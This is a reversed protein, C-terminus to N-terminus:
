AGALYGFYSLVFGVVLDIVGAGFFIMRHELLKSGISVIWQPAFITVVARVISVWGVLTIILRWDLAWVNHALVLALGCLLGLVGALYILAPSKLFDQLLGRFMERRVLLAIGVLVFIPGPLKAIFISTQM